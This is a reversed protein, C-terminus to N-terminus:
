TKNGAYGSFGCCVSIGHQYYNMNICWIPSPLLAQRKLDAIEKTVVAVVFRFIIICSLTNSQTDKLAKLLFSAYQILKSPENLHPPKSAELQFLIYQFPAVRFLGREQWQLTIRGIRM